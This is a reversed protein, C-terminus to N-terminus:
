VGAIRRQYEALAEDLRQKATTDGPINPAWVKGTKSCSIGPISVGIASVKLRKARAAALLAKLEQRLLEGVLPSQRGALPVVSKRLIKGSRTFLAGALKTGGLDLGIVTMNPM